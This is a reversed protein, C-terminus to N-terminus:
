QRNGVIELLQKQQELAKQLQATNEEIRASAVVVAALQTAESATIAGTAIGTAIRHTMELPTKADAFEPLYIKRHETYNFRNRMVISWMTPNIPIKGCAGQRGLDFWYAEAKPLAIEYADAFEPHTQLWVYFTKKTINAEACFSAVDYGEKFLDILLQPYTEKYKLCDPRSRKKPRAAM